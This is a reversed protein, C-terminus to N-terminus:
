RTFRDFAKAWGAKAAAPNSQSNPKGPETLGAAALREQEYAAADPKGPQPAPNDGSTAPVGTAAKLTALAAETSMDTEYALHSALAECGKAEAAGTIAKIRGSTEAKAKAVADAIAAATQTASNAAGTANLDSMNNGEGSAEITSAEAGPQDASAANEGAVVARRITELLSM